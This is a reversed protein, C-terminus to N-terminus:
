LIIKYLAVEDQFAKKCDMMGAGTMTRLEKVCQASIEIPM